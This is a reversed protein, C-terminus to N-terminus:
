NAATVGADQIVKGWRDFDRQLWARYEDAELWAKGNGAKRAHADFGDSAAARRLAVRLREVVPAPTGPPVILSM